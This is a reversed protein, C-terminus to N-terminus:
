SYWNAGDGGKVLVADIGITSTWDLYVGDSSTFTVSNVGDILYTGPNPPDIKFGHTYGLDECTPNGEVFIAETAVASKPQFLTILTFIMMSAILSKGKETGTFEKIEKRINM